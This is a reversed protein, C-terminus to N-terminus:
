AQGDDETAALSPSQFPCALCPSTAAGGRAPHPHKPTESRGWVQSKQSTGGNDGAGPDARPPFAPIHQSTSPCKPHPPSWGTLPVRETVWVGRGVQGRVGDMRGSIWCLLWCGSPQWGDFFWLLLCLWPAMLVAILDRHGQGEAQGRAPAQADGQGDAFPM